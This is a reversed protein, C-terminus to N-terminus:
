EAAGKVLHCFEDGLKAGMDGDAGAYVGAMGVDRSIVEGRWLAERIRQLLQFFGYAEGVDVDPMAIVGLSGATGLEVAM